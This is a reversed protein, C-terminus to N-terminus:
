LAEATRAWFSVLEADGGCNEGPGGRKKGIIKRIEQRTVNIRQSCTGESEGPAGRKGIIKEIEQRTVNIRQSCVAPEGRVKGKPGFENSEIDSM